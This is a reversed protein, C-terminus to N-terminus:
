SKRARAYELVEYLQTFQNVPLNKVQAFYETAEEKSNADYVNIAENSCSGKCSFYFKTKM